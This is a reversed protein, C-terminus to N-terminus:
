GILPRLKQKPEHLGPLSWVWNHQSHNWSRYGIEVEWSSTSVRSIVLNLGIRRTHPFTFHYFISLVLFLLLFLGLFSQRNYFLKHCLQPHLFNCFNFGNFRRDTLLSVLCKGLLPLWKNLFLLLFPFHSFSFLFGPSSTYSLVQSSSSRCLVWIQNGAHGHQVASVWRYNWSWPIWCRGRRAEEVPLGVCAAYVWM